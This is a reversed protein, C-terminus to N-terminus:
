GDAHEQAQSRLAELGRSVLSKVTGPRCGLAEAADRESLDLYFRLVLAARQREPLRLLASKMVEYEELDTTGVHRPPQAAERELYRQETARRRHHMRALNIVTTRLYAPFAEPNRLDAFRGALRVFADQVM